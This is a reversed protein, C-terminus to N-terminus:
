SVQARKVNLLKTDQTETSVGNDRASMRSTLCFGMRIVYCRQSWRLMVVFHRRCGRGGGVVLGAM